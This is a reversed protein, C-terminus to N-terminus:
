YEGFASTWAAGQEEGSLLEPPKVSVAFPLDQRLEIQALLLSFAEGPKLGLRALVKKARKLRTTPVRTRFLTTSSSM